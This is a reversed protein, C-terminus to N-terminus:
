KQLFFYNVFDMLRHKPILFAYLHYIPNAELELLFFNIIVMIFINAYKLIKKVIILQKQLFFLKLHYHRFKFKHYKFM